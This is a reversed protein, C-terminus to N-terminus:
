FNQVYQYYPIENFPTGDYPNNGAAPRGYRISFQTPNNRAQATTVDLVVDGHQASNGCVRARANTFGRQYQDGTLYYNALTADGNLRAITADDPHGHQNDRACSIIAARSRIRTMFPTSTSYQSGHHSTKFAHVRGAIDNTPNLRFKLGYQDHDEQATTLDGGVYYKFGEFEILLGISRENKAAESTSTLVGGGYLKQRTGNPQLVYLNVAVVTATPAGNPVGGPVGDWFIERGLLYYPSEYGYGTPVGGVGEQLSLVKETVHTRTNVRAIARFYRLVDESIAGGLSLYNAGGRKRKVGLAYQPLGQDYIRSYRYAVHSREMLGRVGNFHDQDYHTAVVVDLSTLNEVTTVEHHVDRNNFLHGGDVLMSRTQLVNPPYNSDLEQAIFLTADGSGVLDLHKIKLTWPM